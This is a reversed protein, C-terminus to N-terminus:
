RRSDQSLDQRRAYAVIDSRDRLNLKRCLRARYTEVTKVSLELREAAQRNTLGESLMALVESERTSLGGAVPRHAIATETQASDPQVTPVAPVTPSAAPLRVGPPMIRRGAAIWQLRDTMEVVGDTLAICGDLFSPLKHGAADSPHNIMAVFRTRRHGANFGTIWSLPGDDAFDGAAPDCHLLIVTSAQVCASEVAAAANDCDAIVRVTPCDQWGVRLGLRVFPHPHCIVVSVCFCKTPDSRVPRRAASNGSFNEGTGPVLRAPLSLPSRFSASVFPPSTSRITPPPLTQM